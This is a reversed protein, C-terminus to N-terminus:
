QGGELRATLADRIARAVEPTLDIGFWGDDGEVALQDYPRPHLGPGIWVFSRDGDAAIVTRLKSNAENLAADGRAEALAAHLAADVVARLGSVFAVESPDHEGYIRVLEEDSLVSM